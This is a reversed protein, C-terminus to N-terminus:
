AAAAAHPCHIVISCVGTAVCMWKSICSCLSPFPCAVLAVSPSWRLRKHPSRDRDLESFLCVRACVFLVSFRQRVMENPDPSTLGSNDLGNQSGPAGHLDLIVYLGADRTFVHCSFLPVPHAVLDRLYCVCVSGDQQNPPCENTILHKSTPEDPCRNYQSRCLDSARTEGDQREGPPAVFAM